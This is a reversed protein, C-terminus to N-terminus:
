NIEIVHVEILRLTRREYRGRSCDYESVLEEFHARAQQKSCDLKCLEKWAHITSKRQEIIFQM